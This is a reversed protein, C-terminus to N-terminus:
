GRVDPLHQRMWARTRARDADTITKASPRYPKVPVPRGTFAPVAVCQCHPHAGFDVTNSRYVAGRAALMQCFACGGSASRQWGQAEPDETASTMVTDRAVNTIKLQVGGSIRALAADWDPETDYLPGVGWKALADLGDDNVDTVIAAFRRDVNLEDRTDDYWDAAVAGAALGYTRTLAPLVEVYAAKAEDATRVQRRLSALDATALSSLGALALRLDSPTPM